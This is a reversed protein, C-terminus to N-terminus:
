LMSLGEIKKRKIGLSEFHLKFAEFKVLRLNSIVPFVNTDGRRYIEMVEFQQTVTVVGQSPLSGRARDNDRM